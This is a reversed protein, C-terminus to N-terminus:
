DGYHGACGRSYAFLERTLEYSAAIADDDSGAALVPQVLQTVVQATLRM